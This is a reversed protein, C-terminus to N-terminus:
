GERAGIYLNERAWGLLLFGIMLVGGSIGIGIGVRAEDKGNCRTMLGKWDKRFSFLFIERRTV